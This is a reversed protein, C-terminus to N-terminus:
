ANQNNEDCSLDESTEKSTIDIKSGCNMCFSDGLNIRNGCSPCVPRGQRFAEEAEHEALNIAEIQKTATDIQAELSSVAEFELIYESAISDNKLVPYLARGLNCLADSKKRELDAIKLRIQAIQGSAKVSSTGRELSQTFDELLGMDKGKIKTWIERYERHHARMKALRNEVVNFYARSSNNQAM